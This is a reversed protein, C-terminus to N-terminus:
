ERAQTTQERRAAVDVVNARVLRVATVRRARAAGLAFAQGETFTCGRVMAADLRRAAGAAGPRTAVVSAVHDRAADRISLARPARPSYLCQLCGRAVLRM